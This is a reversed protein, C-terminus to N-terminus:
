EVWNFLPVDNQLVWKNGIHRFAYIGTDGALFGQRLSVFVLATTGKSDIGPLCIRVLGAANPFHRYFSDWEKNFNRFGKPPKDNPAYFAKEIAEESELDFNPPLHGPFILQLPNRSRQIFSDVAQKYASDHSKAAARLEGEPSQIPDQSKPFAVTTNVLVYGFTGSTEPMQALAAKIIDQDLPTVPPSAAQAGLLAAFAFLPFLSHKLRRNARKKM